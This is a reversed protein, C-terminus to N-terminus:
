HNLVTIKHVSEGESSTIVLTYMGNALMSTHIDTNGTLEFESTLLQGKINYLRYSYSKSLATVIKLNENAPNPFVTFLKPSTEAISNPGSCFTTAAMTANIQSATTNAALGLNAQNGGTFTAITLTSQPITIVSDRCGSSGSPDTKMYWSNRANAYGYMSGCIFYGGDPTNKVSWLKDDVGPQGLELSWIITGSTDTKFLYSDNYLGLTQNIYYGGVVLNNDSTHLISLGGNYMTYYRQWIFNGNDDIHAMLLNDNTSSYLGQGTMYFGHGVVEVFDYIRDFRTNHGFVSTWVLNGNNDLKVVYNETGVNSGYSGTYGCCLYGGTSIPKAAYFEEGNGGGIYRGWQYTGNTDVKLVYGIPVFGAGNLTDAFGSLILGGDPTLALSRLEDPETTKGYTRAWQVAGASNLKCVYFSTNGSVTAIGGMYISGSAAEAIQVIKTGGVTKAWQVTGSGDMKVALGGFPSGTSYGAAIYGGNNSPIGCIFEDDQNLDLTKQFTTQSRLFFPLFLLLIALAKPFIQMM